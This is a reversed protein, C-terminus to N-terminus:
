TLDMRGAGHRQIRQMTRPAAFLTIQRWDRRGSSTVGHSDQNRHTSDYPPLRYLRLSRLSRADLGVYGRTRTRSRFSRVGLNAPPGEEDCSDFIAVLIREDRQEQRM